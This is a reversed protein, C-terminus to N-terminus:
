SERAGTPKPSRLALHQRLDLIVQRHPSPIDLDLYFESRDIVEAVMVAPLLWDFQVKWTALPLIFGLSLRLITAAPRWDGGTWNKRFSFLALKILGAISAPLADHTLLGYLFLGTLLAGASHLWVGSGAAVRAYVHDICFLAIFGALAAPLALNRGGPLLLMLAAMVTFALFCLIERSLWSHRPNLVARWGRLPHGLHLSSVGIVALSALLFESPYIFVSGAASAAIMAVLLAAGLTFVILSWESRVAIRVPPNLAPSNPWRMGPDLEPVGTLEPGTRGHRLPVFRMAPQMRTEPFGDVHETGDVGDLEAFQLAGTPCLSTCAPMKGEELRHHCLTCKAVTGSGRDYRPADFPCAWSCYRCGICLEADVLVAGTSADRSYALAPCAKMCAPDACHQCALSLHFRSVEPIHQANFTYIQRWSKGTELENEISCALRCAHCGTCRNLDLLFGKM